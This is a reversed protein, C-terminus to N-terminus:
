KTKQLLPIVFGLLGVNGPRNVAFSKFFFLGCDIVQEFEKVLVIPDDVNDSSSPSFVILSEKFPGREDSKLNTAQQYCILISLFDSLVLPNSQKLSEQLM